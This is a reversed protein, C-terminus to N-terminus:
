GPYSKVSCSVRVGSSTTWEGKLTPVTNNPLFTYQDDTGALKSGNFYIAYQYYKLGVLPISSNLDSHIRWGNNYRYRTVSLRAKQDPSVWCLSSTNAKAPPATAVSHVIAGGGGLFMAASLTAVVKYRLKM